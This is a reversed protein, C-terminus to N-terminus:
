IEQPRAGPQYLFVGRTRQDAFIIANPIKAGSYPLDCGVGSIITRFKFPATAFALRTAHVISKRRLVVMQDEFGFLGSINDGIDQNALDEFGSGLGSWDRPNGNVPWAIGSPRWGGEKLGVYGAVIREGFNTIFRAR